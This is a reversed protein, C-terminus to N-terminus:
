LLPLLVHELRLVQPTVGRGRLVLREIVRSFLENVREVLGPSPGGYIIYQLYCLSIVKERSFYSFM